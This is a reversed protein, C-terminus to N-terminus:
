IYANVKNYSWKDDFFSFKDLDNARALVCLCSDLFRILVQSDLQRLKCYLGMIEEATVSRVLNAPHTYFRRNQICDVEREKEELQWADLLRQLEDIVFDQTSFKAIDTDAGTSRINRIALPVLCVVDNINAPICSLEGKALLLNLVSGVTKALYAWQTCHDLEYHRTTWSRLLHNSHWSINHWWRACCGINANPDAVIFDEELAYVVADKGEYIFDVKHMGLSSAIVPLMLHPLLEFVCPWNSLTLSGDECPALYMGSSTGLLAFGPDHEIIELPHGLGNWALRPVEDDLTDKMRAVRKLPALLVGFLGL